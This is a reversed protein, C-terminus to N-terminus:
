ERPHFHLLQADPPGLQTEGHTSVWPPFWHSSPQCVYPGDHFGVHSGSTKGSFNPSTIICPKSPFIQFTHLTTTKSESMSPVTAKQIKTSYKWVYTHAANPYPETCEQSIVQYFSVHSQQLWQCMNTLLGAKFLAVEQRCVHRSVVHSKSCRLLIGLWFFM